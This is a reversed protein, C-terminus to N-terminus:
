RHAGGRAVDTAAQSEMDWEEHPYDIVAFGRESFLRYVEIRDCALVQAAFGASIKGQEYLHGLTSVMANRIFTERDERSVLLIEDPFEVQVSM